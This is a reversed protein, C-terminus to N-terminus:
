PAVADEDLEETPEADDLLAKLEWVIVVEDDPLEVFGVEDLIVKLRGPTV